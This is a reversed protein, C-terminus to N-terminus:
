IDYSSYGVQVTFGPFIYDVYFDGVKSTCHENMWDELADVADENDYEREIENWHEDFGDFDNYTLDYNNEGVQAFLVDEGCAKIMEMFEDFM